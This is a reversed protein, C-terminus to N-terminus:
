VDQPEMYIQQSPPTTVLYCHKNYLLSAPIRWPKGCYFTDAVLHGDAYIQAVDCPMELSVFGEPGTVTLTYWNRPAPGGLVLEEAYAPTFPEACPTVTIQAPSFARRESRPVFHDEKWLAYSFDGPQVAQLSDEQWYLDRGDGLFVQGHLKRLWLAKELPLTVLRLDGATQVSIGDGARLLPGDKVQYQAPIGPISAFFCTNGTRCLPQATAWALTQTGLSLGFPFFFATDGAVTIPPFTMTGTDLVANEVPDLTAHRQYHNVFVFGAKGNTRMCYRLAKRDQPAPRNGKCACVNEMGALEPGFDAIFLHLLNLWRYQPQTEGYQTLATDFDYNLIPYDNPYGTARSEQFTSEQGLPNTGGHYMYYGVLNNGCGLKVLSLAYADMGSIRVRRHYTSQQGAGIECTAYPYQDYPLQWGDPAVTQLVDAGVAADNRNTDFVYHPSLPLPNCHQTWPADPYAAFVPLVEQVPIRAGSVSNWGTVTYLPVDYGIEVAMEKLTALHESDDVLENELQIGVIPGGDKYLLGHIQDFIAQYWKRVVALYAANNCRLPIGKRVLWDPFGGNRCEGHAWPGIRLLVDLGAKQCCLVFRRVNCAGSFTCQGEREEHHIWFLYSSVITIGGAKMKCLETEWDKPDCRSFHFEGMIPLWPKGGRTLYLSTVDIHEGQPNCGGLHLHGQRIPSPHYKEFTYRM